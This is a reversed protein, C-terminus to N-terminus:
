IFMEGSFGSESRWAAVNGRRLSSFCVATPNPESAREERSASSIAACCGLDFGSAGFGGCRGARALRM